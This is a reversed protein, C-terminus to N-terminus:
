NREKGGIYTEDVEVTGVIKNELDSNWIERIRHMMHWSCPQSIGLERHIKMSSVGKLNTAMMYVATLWKRLPIKSSQM